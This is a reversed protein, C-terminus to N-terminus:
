VCNKELWGKSLEQGIINSYLARDVVTGDKTIRFHPEPNSILLTFWSALLLIAIILIPIKIKNKM